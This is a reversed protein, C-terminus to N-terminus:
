MDTIDEHTNFQVRQRRMTEMHVQGGGPSFGLSSPVPASGASVMGMETVTAAHVDNVIRMSAM